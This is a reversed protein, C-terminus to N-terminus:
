CYNAVSPVSVPLHSAPLSSLPAYCGTKSLTIDRKSQVERNGEASKRDPGKRRWRTKGGDKEVELQTIGGKGACYGESEAM